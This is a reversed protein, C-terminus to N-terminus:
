SETKLYMQFIWMINMKGSTQDEDVKEPESHYIVEDDLFVHVVADAASISLTLGAYEKPVINQFIMISEYANRSQAEYPLDTKHCEGRAQASEFLERMDEPNELEEKSLPQRDLDFVAMIWDENMFYEIQNPLLSMDGKAQYQILAIVMFILTLIISIGAIRRLIKM